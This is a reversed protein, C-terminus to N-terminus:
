RRRIQASYILREALPMVGEAHATGIELSGACGESLRLDWV